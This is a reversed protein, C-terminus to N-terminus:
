SKELGANKMHLGADLAFLVAVLGLPGSIVLIWDLRHPAAIPYAAALVGFGIAGLWPNRWGAAAVLGVVLAPALHIGFGAVAAGSLGNDFADLAFLGLFAAMALGLLRPGWVVFSRLHSSM